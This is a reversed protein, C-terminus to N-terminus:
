RAPQELEVLERRGRTVYVLAGTVVAGAAWIGLVVLVGLMTGALYGERATDSALQGYELANHALGALLVFTMWANFAWFLFLFLWGAVGRRRKEILQRTVVQEAM